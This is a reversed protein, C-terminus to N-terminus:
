PLCKERLLKFHRAYGGEPIPQSRLGFYLYAALIGPKPKLVKTGDAGVVFDFDVYKLCCTHDGFVVVPESLGMLAELDNWYGSVLRAEQSVIPYLGEELYDQRKIKTKPTLAECLAAFPLARTGIAAEVFTVHLVQEFLNNADALNVEANARARDLAAFAQDLIAVIRKQEDLPPLPIATYVNRIVSPHAKRVWDFVVQSHLCSLAFYLYRCSVRDPRLVRIFGGVNTISFRHRSRYFLDGGGDVSWTIMEEEFM